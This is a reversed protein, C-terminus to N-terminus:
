KLKALADSDLKRAFAVLETEGTGPDGALEVYIKGGVVIQLKHEGEMVATEGSIRHTKRNSMRILDENAFLPLLQALLPSDKMVKVEIRRAGSIYVRSISVGGGVSTLDDRKLSEGTWANVKDPLLSSVKAAGKEEMLKFLERLKATVADNDGKKYDAFVQRMGEEFDEVKKPEDKAVLPVVTALIVVIISKLPLTM